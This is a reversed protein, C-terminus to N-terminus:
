GDPDVNALLKDIRAILERSRQITELSHKIQQQLQERESRIDAIMRKSAKVEKDM